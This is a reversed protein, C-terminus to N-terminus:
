QPAAHPLLVIKHRRPHPSPYPTCWCPSPSSPPPLFSSPGSFPSSTGWSVTSPAFRIHPVSVSVVRADNRSRPVAKYLNHCNNNCHAGRESRYDRFEFCFGRTQHGFANVPDRENRPLRGLICDVALNAYRPTVTHSFASRVTSVLRYTSSALRRSLNYQSDSCSWNM